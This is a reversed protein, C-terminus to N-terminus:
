AVLRIPINRSAFYPGGAYDTMSLLVNRDRIAEVDMYCRVVRNSYVVKSPTIKAPVQKLASALVPAAKLSSAAAVGAVGLFGLFSRRSSKM